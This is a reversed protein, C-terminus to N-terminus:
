SGLFADIKKQFEGLIEGTQTPATAIATTTHRRLVKAFAQDQTRELAEELANLGEPRALAIMVESVRSAAVFMPIQVLTRKNALERLIQMCAESLVSETYASLRDRLRVVIRRLSIATQEFYTLSFDRLLLDSLFQVATESGFDGLLLIYERVTGKGIESMRSAQSTARELRAVLISSVEDAPLGDPEIIRYLAAITYGFHDLGEYGSLLRELVQRLEHSAGQSRFLSELLIRRTLPSYKDLTLASLALSVDAASRLTIKQAIEVADEISQSKEIQDLELVVPPTLFARAFEDIREHKVRILRRAAAADKLKEIVSPMDRILEMYSPYGDFMEARNYGKRLRAKIPRRNRQGVRPLRRKGRNM